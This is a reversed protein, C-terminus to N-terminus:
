EGIVYYMTKNKCAQHHGSLGFCTTHKSYYVQNKEREIATCGKPDQVPTLGDCLIVSVDM